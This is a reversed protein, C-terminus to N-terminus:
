PQGSQSTCVCMWVFMCWISVPDWPMDKVLADAEETEEEEEEADDDDMNKLAACQESQESEETANSVKGSNLLKASCNIQVLLFWLLMLKYVDEFSNRYKQGIWQITHM